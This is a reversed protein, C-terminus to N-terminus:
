RGLLGPVESLIGQMVGVLGTLPGAVASVLMQKLELVTPMKTLKEAEESSLAQGDLLGGKFPLEQKQKKRWDAVMRAAQVTDEMDYLILTPGRLASETLGVGRKEFVRRAITNKVVNASVGAERLIARLSSVQEATLGHYDLLVAERLDGLRGDLDRALLQKLRKSM